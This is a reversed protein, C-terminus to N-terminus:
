PLYMAKRRAITYQEASMQTIIETEVVQSNFYKTVVRIPSTKPPCGKKVGGTLPTAPDCLLFLCSTGPSVTLYDILVKASAARTNIGRDSLWKKQAKAIVNSIAKPDYVRDEMKHFLHSATSPKLNAVEFHKIMKQVNKNIQDARTFIVTRRVHGSHTDVYGNKSLHFL